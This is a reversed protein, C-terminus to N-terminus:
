TRARRRADRLLACPDPREDGFRAVLKALELRALDYGHYLGLLRGQERADSSHVSGPAERDLRNPHSYVIAQTM